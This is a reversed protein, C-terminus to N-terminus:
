ATKTGHSLNPLARQRQTQLSIGLKKQIWANVNHTKVTRFAADITDSTIQTVAAAMGLVTKTYGNKNRGMLQKGKGILSELVESSGLLRREGARESQARVFQLLEDVVARAPDERYESLLDRLEDHAQRHYGHNRIYQLITATAELTTSWRALSVAHQALWGIKRELAERDVTIQARALGAEPNELFQGVRRSWQILPELNMWRAKGKLDPPMLFALPTQRIQTKSRNADALFEEWAPTQHLQRKVANAAAHAIDHVLVTPHHATFQDCGSRVDSGQDCLVCCPTIGTARALDELQQHVADGNSSDVREIEWVSLDQHELAFSAGPDHALAERRKCEWVSLRVGCVLFCKGHGTQLTHDLLWVWDDAPEKPRQLEYLGLRLLWWQGGNASPFEGGPLLPAVIELARAAARYGIASLCM